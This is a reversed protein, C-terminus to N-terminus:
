ETVEKFISARRKLERREVRAASRKSRLDPEYSTVDISWIYSFEGNFDSRVWRRQGNPLSPQYIVEGLENRFEIM